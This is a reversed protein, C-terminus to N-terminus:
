KPIGPPTPDFMWEFDAIQAKPDSKIHRMPMRSDAIERASAFVRVTKVTGEPLYIVKADGIPTVEVLQFM